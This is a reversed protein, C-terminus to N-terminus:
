KPRDAFCLTSIMAVGDGGNKLVEVCNDGDIGGVGCVLPLKEEAGNSDKTNQSHDLMDLKIKKLSEPGEPVKGPHSNTKFMTGVVIYDAKVEMARLAAESSHVSCGLVGNFKKNKYSNIFDQVQAEPLHVGDAKCAIAVDLDGNVMFIASSRDVVDRIRKGMTALEERTATKDRLQVLSVGGEVALGIRSLIIRKAEESYKETCLGEPTILCLFPPQVIDSFL